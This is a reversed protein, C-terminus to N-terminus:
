TCLADGPYDTMLTPWHHTTSAQCIRQTIQRTELIWSRREGGGIGALTHGDPSVALASVGGDTGGSIVATVRRTRVNWLRLTRDHSGTIMTQGDRTFALASVAQSHGSLTASM